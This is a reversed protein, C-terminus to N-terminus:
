DYKTKYTAPPQQAQHHQHRNPLESASMEVNDSTPVIHCSSLDYACHKPVGIGLVISPWQFSDVRKYDQLDRQIKLWNASHKHDFYQAILM